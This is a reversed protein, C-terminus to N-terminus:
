ARRGQNARQYEFLEDADGVVFNVSCGKPNPTGQALFIQVEGLNVGAFTPPDEWTFGLSFGLKTTYFEVAALVDSVVLTPHLRECDVQPAAPQSM